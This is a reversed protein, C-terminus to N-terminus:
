EYIGYFRSMDLGVKLPNNKIYEYTLMLHREDRIGKDYYSSEWFKGKKSLLKNISYSSSGKLKKMILPLELKQNFLIHVHNPMICLAILEYLIKDQQLFFNKLYTLVKDNLYCGNSSNDTYNDMKYQKLDTKINESSLKKLFDDISDNTRFTVFQYDGISDIHPLNSFQSKM